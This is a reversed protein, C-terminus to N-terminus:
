GGGSLRRLSADAVEDEAERLQALTVDRRELCFRAAADLGVM